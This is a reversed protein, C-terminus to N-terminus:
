VRSVLIFESWCAEAAAKDEPVICDHQLLAEVVDHGKDWIFGLCSEQGAFFEVRLM